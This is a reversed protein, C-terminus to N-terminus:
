CMLLSAEPRHFRSSKPRYERFRIGLLTTPHFHQHFHNRFVIEWSESIVSVKFLAWFPLYVNRFCDTPFLAKTVFVSNYDSPIEFQVKSRFQMEWMFLFYLTHLFKVNNKKVSLSKPLRILFPNYSLQHLNLKILHCENTLRKGNIARATRILSYQRLSVEFLWQWSNCFLRKCLKYSNCSESYNDSLRTHTWILM